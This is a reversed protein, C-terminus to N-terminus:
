EKVKQEVVGAPSTIMGPRRIVSDVQIAVEITPFVEKWQRQKRAFEDPYKREFEEAFGIIDTKFGKQIPKLSEQIRAKIDTAMAQQLREMWQPNGLNLPTGNEVVNGEARVKVNMKWKGDKIIPELQTRTRTPNLTIYGQIEKARVTVSTYTIDNRLWLLGRTERETLSGVMKGNEFVATGILYPITNFTQDGKQPPLISIFPLAAAKGKSRIMQQLETMTVSFSVEQKAYEFLVEASFREMPPILQLINVADGKSVFFLARNRPEPHRAFFDMLEIIGDKAMKEGFIYVKCHGFFVRRPLKAQVQTLADALSVGKGARVITLPVNRQTAGGGGQTGGSMALPSFVQVSLSISDDKEKDIALATIIAIDNVEIRDWCGTLLVFSVIPIIWRIGRM